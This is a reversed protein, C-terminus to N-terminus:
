LRQAAGEATRVAHECEATGCVPGPPTLAASLFMDTQQEIMVQNEAQQMVMGTVATYQGCMHTRTSEAVCRVPPRGIM